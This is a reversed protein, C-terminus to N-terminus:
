IMTRVVDIIRTTVPFGSRDGRAAAMMSAARELLAM